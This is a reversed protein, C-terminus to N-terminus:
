PGVLRERPLYEVNRKMALFRKEYLNYSLYAALIGLGLGTVGAVVVALLKSHTYELLLPRLRGAVLLLPLHLVYIGYSYKGLFRLGSQEFLRRCLSVPRLAWAILATFGIAAFSYRYGEEWLFVAQPHGTAQPVVVTISLIVVAAAATFIYPALRLVRDWYRTRYLLALAGGLLLSDARCLTNVHTFRTTDGNMIVVIRLVLSGVSGILTTWLLTRRNRLAFVVAPWVLYFQEEIALSWFHYLGIGAGPSFTVIQEPRLNQLYALLLWGMGHWQLHLIPTLLLVVFLFGYYLPFIRLARRAYFKRFYGPDDITDVLIGTILFGSLAFFLDVGFLGDYFVHGVFRVLFNGRDYNSEFGHSLIVMLIALGRIGDLARLHGGSSRPSALASKHQPPM